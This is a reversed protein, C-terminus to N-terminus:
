FKFTVFKIGGNYVAITHVSAFLLICVDKLMLYLANQMIYRSRKYYLMEKLAFFLFTVCGNKYAQLSYIIFNLNHFAESNIPTKRAM